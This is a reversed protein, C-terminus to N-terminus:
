QGETAALVATVMARLASIGAKRAENAINQAASERRICGEALLDRESRIQWLYGEPVAADRQTAPWAALHTASVTLPGAKLRHQHANGTWGPPLTDASV